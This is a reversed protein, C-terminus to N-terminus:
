MMGSHRARAFRLFGIDIDTADDDVRPLFAAIFASM